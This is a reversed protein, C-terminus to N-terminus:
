RFTQQTQMTAGKSDTPKVLAVKQALDIPFPTMKANAISGTASTVVGITKENDQSM